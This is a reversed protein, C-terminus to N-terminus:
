MQDKKRQILDWADAAMIAVGEGDLSDRQTIARRFVYEIIFEEKTMRRKPEQLRPRRKPTPAKM